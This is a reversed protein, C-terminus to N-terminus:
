CGSCSCFVSGSALIPSSISHFSVSFFSSRSRFNILSVISVCIYSVLVRYSLYVIFSIRILVLASFLTGPSSEAPAVCSDHRSQTLFHVCYSERLVM